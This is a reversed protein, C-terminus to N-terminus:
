KQNNNNKKKWHCFFLVYPLMVCHKITPTATASRMDDNDNRCVSLANIKRSSIRFSAERAGCCGVFFSFEFRFYYNWRCECLIFALNTNGHTSKADMHAKKEKKKKREGYHILTYWMQLSLHEGWQCQSKCVTMTVIKRRENTYIGHSVCISM